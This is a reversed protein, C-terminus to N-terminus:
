NKKAFINGLDFHLTLDSDDSKLKELESSYGKSNRLDIYIRKDATAFYKSDTRLEQFIQKNANDTLPSQFM